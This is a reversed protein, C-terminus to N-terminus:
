KQEKLRLQHGKATFNLPQDLIHVNKSLPRWDYQRAYKMEYKDLIATMEGKGTVGKCEEIVDWITVEKSLKDAKELETVILEFPVKTNDKAISYTTETLGFDPPYYPFLGTSAGRIIRLSNLNNGGMSDYEYGERIWVTEIGIKESDQWVKVHFDKNKFERQEKQLKQLFKLKKSLEVIANPISHRELCYEKQICDAKMLTEIDRELQEKM